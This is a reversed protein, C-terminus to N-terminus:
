GILVPCRNGVDIDISHEGGNGYQCFLGKGLGRKRQWFHRDFQILVPIETRAGPIHGGQGNHDHMGIGHVGEFIKDGNYFLNMGNNLIQKFKNIIDLNADFIEQYSSPPITAPCIWTNFIDGLLIVDKITNKKAIIYKDIFNLLRQQHRDPKFWAIDLYNDYIEKSSLHIDSIFIRKTKSM